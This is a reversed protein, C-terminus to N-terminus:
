FYMAYASHGGRQLFGSLKLTKAAWRGTRDGGRVETDPGGNERTSSDVVKPVPSNKEDAIISDCGVVLIKICLSIRGVSEVPVYTRHFSLSPEESM